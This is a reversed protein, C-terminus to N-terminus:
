EAAADIIDIIHIGTGVMCISSYGTLIEYQVFYQKNDRMYISFDNLNDPEFRENNDNEFIWGCGDLGTYDELYLVTYGDPAELLDDKCDFATLSFFLCVFVILINRQKIM